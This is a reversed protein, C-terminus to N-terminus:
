RSEERGKENPFSWNEQESFLTKPFEKEEEFIETILILVLLRLELDQEL